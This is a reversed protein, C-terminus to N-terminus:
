TAGLRLTVLTPPFRGRTACTWTRQWRTKSGVCRQNQNGEEKGNKRREKIKEEKRNEEKMKKREKEKRTEVGGRM